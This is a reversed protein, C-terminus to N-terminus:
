SVFQSDSAYTDHVRCSMDIMNCGEEEWISLFREMRDMGEAYASENDSGVVQIQDDDQQDLVVGNIRTKEYVFNLNNWGHKGSDPGFM